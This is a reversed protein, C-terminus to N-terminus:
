KSKTNNKLTSIVIDMAGDNDLIKNDTADRFGFYGYHSDGPATIICMKPNTPTIRPDDCKKDGDADLQVTDRKNCKSQCM